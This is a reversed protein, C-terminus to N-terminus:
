EIARVILRPVNTEASNVNVSFLACGVNGFGSMKGNGAAGRFARSRFVQGASIRACAIALLVYSINGGGRM